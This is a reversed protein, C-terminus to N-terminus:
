VFFVTYIRLICKTGLRREANQVKDANQAWDATQLKYKTRVPNTNSNKKSRAELGSRFFLIPSCSFQQFIHGLGEGYAFFFLFSKKRRSTSLVVRLSLPVQDVHLVICSQRFVGKEKPGRTCESCQSQCSDSGSCYNDM